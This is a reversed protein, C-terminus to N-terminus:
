VDWRNTSIEVNINKFYGQSLRVLSIIVLNPDPNFYIHNEQNEKMVVLYLVEM